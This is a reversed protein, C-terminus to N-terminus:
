AVNKFEYAVCWAQKTSLEKGSLLAEKAINAQFGNSNEMVITFIENAFCSNRSFGFSIIDYIEKVSKENLNAEEIKIFDPTFNEKANKWSIRLAEAFCASYNGEFTKAIKHAETMIQKRTKM